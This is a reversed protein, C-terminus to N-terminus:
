QSAKKSCLAAFGLGAVPANKRQQAVIYCKNIFVSNRAQNRRKLNGEPVARIVLEKMIEICTFWPLVGLHGRAQKTKM